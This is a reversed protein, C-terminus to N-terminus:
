PTEDQLKSFSEALGFRAQPSQWWFGCELLPFHATQARNTHALAAESLAELILLKEDQPSSEKM